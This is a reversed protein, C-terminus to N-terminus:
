NISRAFVKRQSLLQGILTSFSSTSSAHPTRLLFNRAASTRKNRTRYEGVETPHNNALERGVSVTTVAM